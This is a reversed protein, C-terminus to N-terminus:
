PKASDGELVALLAPDLPDCPKGALRDAAAWIGWLNYMNESRGAGNSLV